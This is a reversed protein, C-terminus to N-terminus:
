WRSGLETSDVGAGGGVRLGSIPRVLDEKGVEDCRRFM